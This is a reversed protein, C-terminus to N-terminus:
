HTTNAGLVTRTGDNSFPGGRNRLVVNGVIVIDSTGATTSVGALANDSITNGTITICCVSGDNGKEVSIGHGGSSTVSNKSVTISEMTGVRGLRNARTHEFLRIGHSGSSLITNGVIAGRRLPIDVRTIGSVENDGVAIGQHGSGTVTNGEITWREAPTGGEAQLLIGAGIAGVVTNNAIRLDTVSINANIGRGGAAGVKGPNVVLNGEVRIRTSSNDVIIGNEVTDRVFVNRVIGDSVEDLEIGCQFQENPARHLPVNGKNGDIQLDEIIVSRTGGAGTPTKVAQGRATDIASGVRIVSCWGSGYLRTQSYVILRTQILYIGCPIFVHGGGARKAADLANQLAPADDRSGVGSAGFESQVNFTRSAPISPAPPKVDFAEPASLLCLWATLAFPVGRLISAWM